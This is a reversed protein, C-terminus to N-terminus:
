GYTPLAVIDSPPTSRPTAPDHILRSVQGGSQNEEVPLDSQYNIKVTVWGRGRRPYKSWASAQFFFGRNVVTEGRKM